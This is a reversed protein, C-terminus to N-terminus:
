MGYLTNICNYFLERFRQSVLILSCLYENIINLKCKDSFPHPIYNSFKFDSETKNGEVKM